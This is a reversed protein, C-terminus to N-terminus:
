NCLKGKKKAKNIVPIAVLPALPGLFYISCVWTLSKNLCRNSEYIGGFNTQYDYAINQSNLYINRYTKTTYTQSVRYTNVRASSNTNSNSYINGYGYTVSGRSQSNGQGYATASSITTKSFNEYILITGEKGDDMTRDPVGFIRLIQNKDKGIADDLVNGVYTFQTTYCSQLLIASLVVLIFKTRKM